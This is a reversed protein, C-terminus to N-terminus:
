GSTLEISGITIIQKKTKKEQEKFGNNDERSKPEEIKFGFKFKDSFLFLFFSLFYTKYLFL